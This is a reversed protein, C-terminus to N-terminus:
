NYKATITLLHLDLEVVSPSPYCPLSSTLDLAAEIHVMKESPIDCKNIEKFINELKAINQNIEENSYKKM